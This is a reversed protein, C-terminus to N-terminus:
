KNNREIADIEMPDRWRIMENSEMSIHAIAICQWNMKKVLYLLMWKSDADSAWNKGNKRKTHQRM